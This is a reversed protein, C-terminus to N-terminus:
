ESILSLNLRFDARDGCGTSEVEMINQLTNRRKIRKRKKKRSKDHKVQIVRTAGLQDISIRAEM